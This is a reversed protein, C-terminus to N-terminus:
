KAPEKAPISAPAKAPILKEIGAACAGTYSYETKVGEAKGWGGKEIFEPFEFAYKGSMEKLKVAYDPSKVFDAVCIASQKMAAQAAEQAGNKTKWGFQGFGAFALIVAGIPVGMAMDRLNMLYENFLLNFFIRPGPVHSIM